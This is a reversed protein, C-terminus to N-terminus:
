GPTFEQGVRYTSYLLTARFGAESVDGIDTEESFISSSASMEVKRLM